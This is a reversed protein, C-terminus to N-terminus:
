FWLAAKKKKGLLPENLFEVAQTMLEFRRAVEDVLKPGLALKPDLEQWFYWQKHKIWELGPQDPLFGKPPRSLKDGQIGGCLQVLKRSSLLKDFREHHDMLHARVARLHDPSPMYLGGAIGVFRPSVEFYLAAAENRGLESRYFLASANTKYPTKNASFRTDRYIRYMAKKPEVVYAPAFRAVRAGVAAVVLEMPAKVESLYTEKNAEFWDRNNNKELARLFKIAAAPMCPAASKM